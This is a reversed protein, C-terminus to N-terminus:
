LPKLDYPIRAQIGYTTRIQQLTKFYEYETGTMDKLMSVKTEELQKELFETFFDKSTSVNVIVYNYIDALEAAMEIARDMGGLEDVLGTKLAQEGTWVRGQGISDVAEKSMNRGDACRTLFTDYCREVYGQILGKEDDTMPRSIDGLDAYKNTKVVDATLALKEFLGTTNPFIGFVGISGTLTNAEAVIKSAACSIYYGGSAAVNGMSVVVPKSKKLEVVQKWIQESTYASGGPSNVRIVVAQITEDEKLKRLEDALKETINNQRQYPSSVADQTIEGEAYILAIKNRYKRTPTNVRKMKSLGITKIRLGTQGAQEMLSTEVESRYKLGDILGCEVAKSPDAFFLGNDAFANVEETSINRSDAIGKTVNNWIGSLYSTIQERNAESLKDAIFPEVAGKYTGVKFVMMEIGAKQLLGKYFLTQSSCGTLGLLGQPNLYIQDAVSALYYSGQTYNDAYAVVFKGSERFDILARRIADISATGASFLGLDLYIGKIVDQEKAKRISTLIDRLSFQEDKNLLLAFPNETVSDDIPGALSIKFISEELKPTYSANPGASVSLVIGITLITSIITLLAVALIVGLTSAFMMKVFQKM